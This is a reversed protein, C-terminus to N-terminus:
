GGAQAPGAAQNPPPEAPSIQRRYPTREPPTLLSRLRDSAKEPTSVVDGYGVVTKIRFAGSLVEIRATATVPFLELVTCPSVIVAGADTRRIQFAPFPPSM